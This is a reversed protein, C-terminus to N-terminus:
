KKIATRGVYWDRAEYFDVFVNPKVLFGNEEVYAQVEAVSPPIFDDCTGEKPVHKQHKVASKKLIKEAMFNNKINLFKEKAEKRKPKLAAQADSCSVGHADSLTKSEEEAAAESVKPECLPAEDFLDGIAPTAVAEKARKEAYKM